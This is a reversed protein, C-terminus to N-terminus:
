LAQGSTAHCQAYPRIGLTLLMADVAALSHDTQFCLKGILQVTSSMAALLGHKDGYRHGAAFGLSPLNILLKHIRNGDVSDWCCLAPVFAPSYALQAIKNIDPRDCIQGLAAVTSDDLPQYVANRQKQVYVEARKVNNSEQVILVGVDGNALEQELTCPAFKNMIREDHYEPCIWIGNEDQQPQLTSAAPLADVLKFM